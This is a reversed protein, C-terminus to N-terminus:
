LNSNNAYKWLKAITRSYDPKDADLHLVTCPLPKGPVWELLVSEDYCYRANLKFYSLNFREALVGTMWVDDIWLWNSKDVEGILKSAVQYSMVYAIGSCYVPYTELPYDERSVKWKGTRKPKTGEPMVDCALLEQPLPSDLTRRLFNFLGNIDIFADDDAKLITSTKPCNQTIWRLGLEHKISLNKYTDQFNGVIIDDNIIKEENVRDSLNTDTVEGLVFLLEVTEGSLLYRKSGWTKRISDRRQINKPHSHVLILITSGSGVLHSSCINKPVSSVNAWHPRRGKGFSKRAAFSRITEEFHLPKRAGLKTVIDPSVISQQAVLINSIVYFILGISVIQVLKIFCCRTSSDSSSLKSNNIGEGPKKKATSITVNRNTALKLKPDTDKEQLDSPHVVLM